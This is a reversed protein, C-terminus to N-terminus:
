HDMGTNGELNHLQFEVANLYSEDNLADQSLRGQNIAVKVLDEAEIEGREYANSLQQFSPIGQNSFDGSYARHVLNFPEIKNVETTASVASIEGAFAAPSVTALSVTLLSSALFRLMKM